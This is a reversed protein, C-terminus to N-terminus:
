CITSRRSRSRMSPTGSTRPSSCSRPRSAGSTSTRRRRSGPLARCRSTSSSSTTALERTLAIAEGGSAAEGVVEVEPHASLLYRLESRAPAEDDVLLARITM